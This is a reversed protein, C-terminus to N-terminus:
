IAVAHRLDLEASLERRHRPTYAAEDAQIRAIRSLVRFGAGRPHATLDARRGQESCGVPRTDMVLTSM